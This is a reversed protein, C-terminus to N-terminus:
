MNFYVYLAKVYYMVLCNYGGWPYFHKVKYGWHIM